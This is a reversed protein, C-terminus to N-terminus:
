ANLATVSRRVLSVLASIRVGFVGDSETSDSRETACLGADNAYSLEFTPSLFSNGRGMRFKMDLRLMWNIVAATARVLEAHEVEGTLLVEAM